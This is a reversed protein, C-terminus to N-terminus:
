YNLSEGVEIKQWIKSLVININSRGIVISASVDSALIESGAKTLVLDTLIM